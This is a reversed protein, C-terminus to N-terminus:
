AATRNVLYRLARHLLGPHLPKTLFADMGADLCEEPNETTTVAIIPLRPHGDDEQERIMRTAKLGDIEPMEIDMLVVDFHQQLVAQLVERGNSAVTVHHGQGELILLAVQQHLPSDEALLVRLSRLEDELEPTSM